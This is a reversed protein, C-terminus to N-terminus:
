RFYPQYMLTAENGIASRGNIKSNQIAALSRQRMTALTGFQDIIPRGMELEAHRKMHGAVLPRVAAQWPSAAGVGSGIGAAWGLTSIGLGAQAAGVAGAGWYKGPGFVKSLGSMAAGFVFSDRLHTFTGKAAGWWGGEKYGQYTGFYLTALPGLLRGAGKGAMKGFGLDFKIWEAGGRVMAAGLTKGRIAGHGLVAKTTAPTSKITTGTSAM